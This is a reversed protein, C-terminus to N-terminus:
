PTKGTTDLTLRARMATLDGALATAGSADAQGREIAGLDALTKAALATDLRAMLPHLLDVIKRIGATGAKAGDVPQPLANAAELAGGLMAEPLVTRTALTDALMKANGQLAEISGTLAAIDAGARAGHALALAQQLDALPGAKLEAETLAPRLNRFTADADAAAQAVADLKGAETEDKIQALAAALTDAQQLLYVRYEAVPGVFDMLALRPAAAQPSATVILRGRPASLLGCTIAYEGPHLQATLRRSQGPVINEREEVVIVGDLIEWELVRQSRNTVLFSHKGAPVTLQAPECSRETIAIAIDPGAGKAATPRAGRQAAYFFAIVGGCLLLATGAMAIRLGLSRKAAPAAATM